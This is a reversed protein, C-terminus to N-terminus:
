RDNMPQTRRVFGRAQKVETTVTSLCYRAEVLAQMHCTLPEKPLFRTEKGHPLYADGQSGKHSLQYFIRRCHWLGPNSGQTPFIDQLLSHSGVGMIRAQFIRHVTYDMPDCLTPCSQAVKVKVESRCLLGM